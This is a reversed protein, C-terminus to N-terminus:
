AFSYKLLSMYDSLWDYKEFRISDTRLSISRANPIWARNATNVFGLKYQCSLSKFFSTKHQIIRWLM